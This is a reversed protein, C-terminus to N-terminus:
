INYTYTHKCTYMNIYSVLMYAHNNSIVSVVITIITKDPPVVQRVSSTWRMHEEFTAFFTTAREPAGRCSSVRM